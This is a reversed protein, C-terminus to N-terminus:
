RIRHIDVEALLAALESPPQYGVRHGIIKGSPNGVLTTPYAPVTIRDLTSKNRDPTLEVAIFKGAIRNRVTDDRWSDRKMADCYHCRKSTIFIVMPLNRRHAEAWGSRLDRYWVIESNSPTVGATVYRPSEANSNQSIFLLIIAGLGLTAFSRIGKSVMFRRM